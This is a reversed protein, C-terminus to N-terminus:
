PEDPESGREGDVAAGRHPILPWLCCGLSDSALLIFANFFSRPEMRSETVRDEITMANNTLRAISPPHVVETILYPPVSHFGMALLVPVTFPLDQDQTSEYQGNQHAKHPKSDIGAVKEIVPAAHYCGGVASRHRASHLHFPIGVAGVDHRDGPVSRSGIAERIAQVIDGHRDVTGRHTPIVYAIVFKDLHEDISGM